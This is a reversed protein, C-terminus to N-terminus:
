AAQRVAEIEPAPFGAAILTASWAAADVPGSHLVRLTDSHLTLLVDRVDRHAFLAWRIQAHHAAAAFTPFNLDSSQM